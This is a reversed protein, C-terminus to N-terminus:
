AAKRGQDDEMWEILMGLVHRLSQEQNDLKAELTDIRKAQQEVLAQLSEAAIVSTGDESDGDKRATEDSM